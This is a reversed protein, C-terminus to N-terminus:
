VLFLLSYLGYWFSAPCNLPYTTSFDVPENKSPGLTDRSTISEIDVVLEISLLEESKLKPRSRQYRGKETLSYLQSVSNDQFAHQKRIFLANRLSAKNRGQPIYSVMIFDLPKICSLLFCLGCVFFYTSM